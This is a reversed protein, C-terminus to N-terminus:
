GLEQALDALTAEMRELFQGMHLGDMLAHDVELSFPMRYVGEVKHVKGIVVKPISHMGRREAHKFDTFSIWPLTTAYLLDDEDHRPDLKEGAAAQATIGKARAEFTKAGEEQRHDYYAFTFSEGDNRLVSCGLHVLDLEVVKEGRRRLRMPAYDNMAVNIGHLVLHHFSLSSVKARNWLMDVDMQVCVNWYPNAYDKFMHYAERRSWTQLDIEKVNAM